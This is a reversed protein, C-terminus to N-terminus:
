RAASRTTASSGSAARTSASARRERGARRDTGRSTASANLTGTLQPPRLLLADVTALDVNTLTVKLADGPRGFTGDAAIQQDGNVLTLNKVAVADHAYNITADSGPALQWTQGQTQLGLRQLHM